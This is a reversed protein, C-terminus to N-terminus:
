EYQDWDDFEIEGSIIGRLFHCRDDVSMFHRYANNAFRLPNILLAASNFPGLDKPPTPRPFAALLAERDTSPLSLIQFAYAVYENAMSAGAVKDPDLHKWFVAHVVEHVIISGYLSSNDVKALAAEKRALQRCQQPTSVQVRSEVSDFKGVVPIGCPHRLDDVVEVTLKRKITFDCLAMQEIAWDARECIKEASLGEAETKVEVSLRPNGCQKEAATLSQNEPVLLSLFFFKLILLPRLFEMAKGSKKDVRGTTTTFCASVHQRLIAAGIVLDSSDWNLRPVAKLTAV